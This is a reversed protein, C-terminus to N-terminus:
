RALDDAHGEMTRDPGLIVRLRRKAHRATSRVTASTMGLEAAVKDTPLGHLHLMVIVDLQRASLMQMARFLTLSEEIQGIPDVAQRLAATDFAAAGILPRRNRARCHDIVRNRLVRWAYGEPNESALVQDWKRVLQEFASDAAEEADARIDLFTQAYRVYAPRHLRHFATFDLPLHPMPTVRPAYPTKEENM